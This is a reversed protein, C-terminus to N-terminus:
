APLPRALSAPSTSPAPRPAPAPAPRPLAYPILPEYHNGNVFTIYAPRAFPTTLHSSHSYIASLYARTDDLSLFAGSDGQLRLRSNSTDRITFHNAIPVPSYIVCMNLHNRSNLVATTPLLIIPRQLHVALLRLSAEHIWASRPVGWAGSPHRTQLLNTRFTDVPQSWGYNALVELVFADPTHVMEALSFRLNTVILLIESTIRICGRGAQTHQILGAACAVAYFGCHGDGPVDASCLSHQSCFDLM